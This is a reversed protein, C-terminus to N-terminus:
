AASQLARSTMAGYLAGAILLFVVIGVPSAFRIHGVVDLLLSAGAFGFSLAVGSALPWRTVAAHVRRFALYQAFGLLLGSVLGVTGLSLARTWSDLQLLHPRSGTVFTGIQEVLVLGAALGLCLGLTTATIWSLASVRTRQHLPLWQAAGFVAGVIATLIPTVLMMGVVKEVPAGLLVATGVGATLGIASLAIWYFHTKM